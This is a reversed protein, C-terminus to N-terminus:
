QYQFLPCSTHVALAPTRGIEMQFFEGRILVVRVISIYLYLLKSKNKDDACTGLFSKDQYM